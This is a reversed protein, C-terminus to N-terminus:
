GCTTCCSLVCSATSCLLRHIDLGLCVLCYQASRLWAFQQVSVRQLGNSTPRQDVASLSSCCLMDAVCPAVRCCVRLRLAFCDNYTLDWVMGLSHTSRSWVYLRVSVRQLGISSLGNTSLRCRRAFFVVCALAYILASM